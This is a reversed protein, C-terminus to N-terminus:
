CDTAPQAPESCQTILGNYNEVVTCCAETAIRQIKQRVSPTLAGGLTLGAIRSGDIRVGVAQTKSVFRVEAEDAWGATKSLLALEYVEKARDRDTVALLLQDIHIIRRDSYHVHFLQVGLLADPVDLEICVGAGCGGYRRWLIHNNSATGFCVVGVEDRCKEIMEAMVPEALTQLRGTKVADSARRLAERPTRGKRQVLLEALLNSTDVTPTCDCTWVFEDPDNLTNPRACWFSQRRLLGTLREFDTDSPRSFDRYKYLKM